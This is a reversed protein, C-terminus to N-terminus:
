LNDKRGSPQKTTTALKELIVADYPNHTDNTAVTRVAQQFVMSTNFVSALFESCPPHRGPRIAPMEVYSYSHKSLQIQLNVMREGRHEPRSYTAPLDLREDHKLLTEIRLDDTAEVGGHIAHNALCGLPNGSPKKTKKAHQQMIVPKYPNHTYNAPVICVTQRLTTSTNFANALFEPCPPQRGSQNVSM